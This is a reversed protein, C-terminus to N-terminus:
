GSTPQAARAPATARAVVRDPALTIEFRAGEGPASVVRADGGWREATTQVVSLGVGSGALGAGTSARQFARFLHQQENHPIGPGTDSVIVGRTAGDRVLPAITVRRTDSAGMYKIANDTLNQLLMWLDTRDVRLVPLDDAIELTIKERTLDPALSAALEDAVTRVHIDELRETREAARSLEVLESLMNSEIRVNAGIRELWHVADDPLADAHEELVMTAMGAINRLPAGLDHSVSRIFDNKDRMQQELLTNMTRLQETREHVQRELDANSEELRVRADSLSRHMANFADALERTERPGEHPIDDPTRGARLDAAAAAVQRIPKMLRAAGWIAVLGSILLSLAGAAAAARPLAAALRTDRDNSATVTVYGLLRTPADQSWVPTRCAWGLHRKGALVAEATRLTTPSASIAVARADGLRSPDQRLQLALARGDEDAIRVSAIVTHTFADAAIRELHEARTFALPTRLEEAISAGVAELEVRTQAELAYGLERQTLGGFLVLTLAVLTVAAAAAQARSGIGRAPQPPAGDM